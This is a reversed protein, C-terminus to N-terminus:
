AKFENCALYTVVPLNHDYNKKVNLATDARDILSDISKNQLHDFM